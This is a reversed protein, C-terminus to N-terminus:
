IVPVTFALPLLAAVGAFCVASAVRAVIPASPRRLSVESVWGVLPPWAVAVVTIALVRWRQTGPESWTWSALQFWAVANAGVLLLSLVSAGALALWGTAACTGKCVATGLAMRDSM